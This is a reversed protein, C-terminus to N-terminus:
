RITPKKQFFEHVPLDGAYSTLKHSDWLLWRLIEFKARSTM